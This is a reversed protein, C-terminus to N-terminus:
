FGEYDDNNITFGLEEELEIDNVSNMIKCELNSFTYDEEYIYARTIEEINKNNTM